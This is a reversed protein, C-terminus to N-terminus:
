NKRTKFFKVNKSLIWQNVGLTKRFIALEPGFSISVGYKKPM